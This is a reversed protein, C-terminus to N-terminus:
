PRWTAQLTNHPKLSVPFLHKPTIIGIRKQVHHKLPFHDGYDRAGSGMDLWKQRQQLVMRCIMM